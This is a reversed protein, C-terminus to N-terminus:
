AHPVRTPKGLIGLSVTSEGFTDVAGGIAGPAIIVTGTFADQGTDDDPQVNFPVSEGEHEYLYVSLSEAESWDQAYGLDLTWTSKTQRTFSAGPKLGKWVVASSSPTLTLSSVAAAFDDAAGEGLTLVADQLFIPSVAIEPM